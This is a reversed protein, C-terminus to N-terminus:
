PWSPKALSLWALLPLGIGLLPVELARIMEEMGLGRVLDKAFPPTSTARLGQAIWVHSVWAHMGELPLLLFVVLGIKLHLWAARSTAGDLGLLLAMGALLSVCLAAHRLALWPRARRLSDLAVATEGLAM